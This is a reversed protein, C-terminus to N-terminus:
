NGAFVRVMDFCTSQTQGVINRYGNNCPSRGRKTDITKKVM